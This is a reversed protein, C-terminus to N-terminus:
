ENERKIYNEWHKKYTNHMLIKVTSENRIQVNTLFDYSYFYKDGCGYLTTTKCIIKDKPLVGSTREKM